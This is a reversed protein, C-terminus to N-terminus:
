AAPRTDPTHGRHGPITGPARPQQHPLPTPSKSTGTTPADLLPIPMSKTGSRWGRRKTTTGTRHGHARGAAARGQHPPTPEAPAHHNSFQITSALLPRGKQPKQKINIEGFEKKLRTELDITKHDNKTHHNTTQRKATDPFGNPNLPTSNHQKFPTHHIGQCVTGIFSTQPHSIGRSGGVPSQDSSKRIPFGGATMPRGAGQKARPYAPFHFM